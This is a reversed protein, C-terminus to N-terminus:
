RTWYPTDLREELLQRLVPRVDADPIFSELCAAVVERDDPIWGLANLYEFLYDDATKAAGTMFGGM